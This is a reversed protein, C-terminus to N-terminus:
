SLMRSQQLLFLWLRLSQRLPKQRRLASVHAVLRRQYRRRNNLATEASDGVGVQLQTKTTDSKNNEHDRIGLTSKGKDVVPEKLSADLSANLQSEDSTSTIGRERMAMMKRGVVPTHPKVPAAPIKDVTSANKRGCVNIHELLARRTPFLMDCPHCQYKKSSSKKAHKELLRDTISHLANTQDADGKKPFRRQSSNDTM